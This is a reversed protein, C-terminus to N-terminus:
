RPQHGGDGNEFLLLRGWFRATFGGPSILRPWTRGWIIGPGGPGSGAYAYINKHVRYGFMAEFNCDVHDDAVIGFGGVDGKLTIIMKPTLWFGIRAGLFPEFYSRSIDITYGGNKITQHKAVMSFRGIDIPVNAIRITSLNIRLYQGIYNYRPGGLLELSVAPLPKAASLPLTGVLFRLGLDLNGMRSIYKVSGSPTLTLTGPGVKVRYPWM